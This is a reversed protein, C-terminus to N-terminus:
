PAELAAAGGPERARLRLRPSRRPLAPRERARDPVLTRAADQGADHQHARAAQPERPPEAPEVERRELPRPLRDGAGRRAPVRGPAVGGRPARRAPDEDSARSQPAPPERRTGESPKAESRPP